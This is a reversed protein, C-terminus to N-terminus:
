SLVYPVEMGIRAAVQRMKDNDDECNCTIRIIADVQEPHNEMCWQVFYCSKLTGCETCDEECDDAEHKQLYAYM